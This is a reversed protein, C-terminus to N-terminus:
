RRQRNSRAADTSSGAAGEGAGEPDSPCARVPAARYHDAGRLRLEAIEANKSCGCTGSMSTMPAPSSPRTPRPDNRMRDIEQQEAKVKAALDIQHRGYREIGAMVESREGKMRDFLALFLGQMMGDRNAGAEEPLPRSTPM